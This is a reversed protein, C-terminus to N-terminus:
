KCETQGQHRFFIALLILTNAVILMHSACTHVGMITIGQGMSVRLIAAAVIVLVGLGGVIGSM